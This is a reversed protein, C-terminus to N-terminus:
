KKARQAHGGAAGCQPCSIMQGDPGRVRGVGGCEPCLGLQRRQSRAVFGDVRAVGATTALLAAGCALGVLENTTWVVGLVVM